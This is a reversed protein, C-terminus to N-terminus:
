PDEERSTLTPSSRGQEPVKAYRTTSILASPLVLDDQTTISTQIGFNQQLGTLYAGASSAAFRSQMGGPEGIAEIVYPRTLPRFNVLIAEGAFRIASRSTLRQGNISIAEAGSEWLGNTILQLDRSLVRGDDSSGSRPDGDASGQGGPADDLTIRLGPGEVAVAGNAVRLRELSGGEDVDGAVLDIERQLERARASDEEVAGQREQIQEVLGDRADGRQGERARLEGASVGVVLGIILLWVLLLPRRWSTAPELGEARRAEAAAAYGPDLPRELMSTLLTMSAGPDRVRRHGAKAEAYEAEGEGLEDLGVEEALHDEAPADDRRSPEDPRPM